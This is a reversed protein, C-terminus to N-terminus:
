ESPRIKEIPEAGHNKLFKDLESKIHRLIKWLEEDIRKEAELMKESDTSGFIGALDPVIKQKLMLFENVDIEYLKGFIVRVLKRSILERRDKQTKVRIQKIQEYTKIKDIEVKTLESLQSFSLESSDAISKLYEPIEDARAEVPKSKKSKKPGSSQRTQPIKRTEDIIKIFDKIERNELDIYNVGGATVAPIRESKILASIEQRSKGVLEAFKGQRIYSDPIINKKTM